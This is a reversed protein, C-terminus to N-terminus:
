DGRVIVHQVTGTAPDVVLDLAFVQNFGKAGAKILYAFRHGTDDESSPAGLLEKVESARKGVLIRSDLLDRAFIYRGSEPTKTWAEATFKTTPWSAEDSSCGMVVFILLATWFSKM